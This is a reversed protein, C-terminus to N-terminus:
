YGVLGRLLYGVLFAIIAAISGIVFTELACHVCSKHEVIRGKIFGIILFAIGTLTVSIQFQYKVIAPIFLALVFSLLPIFGIILFSIFTMFGTKLPHKQKKNKLAQKGDM